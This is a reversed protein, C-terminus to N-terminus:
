PRLGGFGSAMRRNFSVKPYQHFRSRFKVRETAASAHGEDVIINEYGDAPQRARSRQQGASKQISARSAKGYSTAKNQTNPSPGRTFPAKARVVVPEFAGAIATVFAREIPEFADEPSRRLQACALAIIFVACLVAFLLLLRPTDLHIM